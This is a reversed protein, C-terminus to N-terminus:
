DDNVAKEIASVRRVVGIHDGPYNPMECALRDHIQLLEKVYGRLEAIETKQMTDGLYKDYLALRAKQQEITSQLKAIVLRVGDEFIERETRMETNM